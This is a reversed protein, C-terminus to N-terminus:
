TRRKQPQIGFVGIYSNKDDYEIVEILDINTKLLDKLIYKMDEIWDYLGCTECFTGHFEVVIENDRITVVKAIAEPARYRNYLEEAKHVLYEIKRENNNLRRIAKSM